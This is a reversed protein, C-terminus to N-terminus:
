RAARPPERDFAAAVVQRGVQQQGRAACRRAGDDDEAVPATRGPGDAISVRRSRSAAAPALLGPGHVHGNGHGLGCTSGGAERALSASCAPRLSADSCAIASPAPTATATASAAPWPADSGSSCRSRPTTRRKSWRTRGWAPTAARAPCPSLASTRPCASPGATSPCRGHLRNARNRPRSPQARASAAASERGGVTAWQLHVVRRRQDGRHAGVWRRRAQQRAERAERQHEAPVGHAAASRQVQRQAARGRAVRRRPRRGHKRDRRRKADARLALQRQRLPPLGPPSVSPPRSGRPARTGAIAARRAARQAEEHRVGRRRGGRGRGLALSDAPSSM